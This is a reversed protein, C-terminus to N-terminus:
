VGVGFTKYSALVTYDNNYISIAYTLVDVNNVTASFLLNSVWKIPLSVGDIAFTTPTYAIAGQDLIVTVYTIQDNGLDLGTLNIGFNSSITRHYFTQASSCNHNVTGAANNINIVTEKIKGLTATVSEIPGVIKSDVADVLITSDDGVVTGKVDGIHTGTSTGTLNGNVNGTLNGEVNGNVNGTVNGIVTGTFTGQIVEAPITGNTGDVLITSNDAFVSGVIDVRSDFSLVVSGTSNSAVIGSGSTTIERVGTNNFTIRSPLGGGAQATTLSVGNGAIFSLQDAVSQAALTPQGTVTIDRFVLIGTAPASNTIVIRGTETSRAGISIGTGAELGVIGENTIVVPGTSNSVSVGLGASVATVGTNTITKNESGSVAIGAGSVVDLVGTNAITVTDSVANTTITIGNGQAINLSATVDDAVVDDQGEVKVTGFGVDAPDNILKSGVRSGAPLQLVTGISRLAADGILIGEPTVFLQQWRNTFSGLTYQDNQNPIVSTELGTFDIPTIEGGLTAYIETFNANIKEFADKVTSWVIPASRPTITQRAM